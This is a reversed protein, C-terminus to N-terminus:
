EVFSLLVNEVRDTFLELGTYLTLTGVTCRIICIHIVSSYGCLNITSKLLRWEQICKM